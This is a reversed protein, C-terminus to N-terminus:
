NFESKLVRFVEPMMAERYHHRRIWQYSDKYSMDTYKNLLYFCCSISRNKGAHCYILVNRGNGIHKIAKEAVINAYKKFSQEMQNENIPYHSNAFRAEYKSDSVCIKYFSQNNARKAARYGSIYLQPAIRTIEM